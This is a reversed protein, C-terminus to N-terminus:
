APVNQGAPYRDPMGPRRHPRFAESARQHSPHAAPLNNGRRRSVTHPTQPRTHSPCPPRHFQRTHSAPRCNRGSYGTAPHTTHFIGHPVARSRVPLAPASPTSATGKAQYQMAPALTSFVAEPPTPSRGPSPPVSATGASSRPLDAGHPPLRRPLRNTQFSRPPM